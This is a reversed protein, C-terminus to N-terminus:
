MTLVLPLPGVTKGTFGPFKQRILQPWEILRALFSLANLDVLTVESDELEEEEEGWGMAVRERHRRVPDKWRKRQGERRLTEAWDEVRGRQERSAQTTARSMSLFGAGFRSEDGM